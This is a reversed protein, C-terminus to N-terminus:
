ALGKADFLAKASRRWERCVAVSRALACGLAIVGLVNFSVTHRKHSLPRCTNTNAKWRMGVQECEAKTTPVERCIDSDHCCSRSHNDFRFALAILGGVAFPWPHPESLSAGIDGSISPQSLEPRAVIILAANMSASVSLLSGAPDRVVNLTIPVVVKV